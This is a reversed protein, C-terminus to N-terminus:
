ALARFDLGQVRFGLHQAGSGLRYARLALSHARLMIRNDEHTTTFIITGKQISVKM